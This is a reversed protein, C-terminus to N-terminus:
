EYIKAVPVGAKEMISVMHATGSGTYNKGFFAIGAHPQFLRFMRVNREIGAKKGRAAWDAFFKKVPVGRLEAWERALTDAGKAEGEALESIPRKEHIECLLKTLHSANWYDRAGCM